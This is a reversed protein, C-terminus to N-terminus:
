PLLKLLVKFKVKINVICAFDVFQCSQQVNALVLISIIVNVMYWFLLALM